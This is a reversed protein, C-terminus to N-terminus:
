DLFPNFRLEHEVTTMPGHGPAIVTTVPVEELVRRLHTQLQRPCFYGGGASGAFVLDGSILLRPGVRDTGGRVLYCNHAAAHGPTHYVSVELGGFTMVEGESVPRGCPASSGQPVYALAAGFRAMVACLAGAHETEVHTLFVAALDRVEVPWTAALTAIGTGTDFLLGRASGPEAVVYANVVGIGHAMSLPWVSFPLAAIEPLPYQGCGLACLGVENLRLVTAIRRLEDVGLAPRYDIADRIKGIAVNARRALEPEAIGARRLAKELVDGIEDELPPLTSSSSMVPLTVPAGSKFLFFTRARQANKRPAAM